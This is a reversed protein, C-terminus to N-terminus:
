GFGPRRAGEQSAGEVAIAYVDTRVMAFLDKKPTRAWLMDGEQKVAVVRGFTTGAGNYAVHLSLTTGEPLVDWGEKDTKAHAIKLVQGLHEAHM